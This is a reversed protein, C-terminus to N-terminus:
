FGFMQTTISGGVFRSHLRIMLLLLFSVSYLLFAMVSKRKSVQSYLQSTSWARQKSQRSVMQDNNKQKKKLFEELNNADILNTSMSIHEGGLLKDHRVGCQKCYWSRSVKAFAAQQDKRTSIAGIERPQSLM